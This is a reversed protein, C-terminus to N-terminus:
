LEGKSIKQKYSENILESRDLKKLLEIFAATKRYGGKKSKKICNRRVLVGIFDSALEDNWETYNEIDEQRILEMEVMGRVTDKANPISKIIDCLEDPNTIIDEGKQNQSYEYYGLAKSKYIRDLFQEVVQVHCPRVIVRGYEDTSYTRIALATSLRVLKMRQDSPEVIPCSSSYVKGMRTAADLLVTETEDDIIIDNPSRSWAFGVLASCLDSTYKHPVTANHKANVVDISVEGSCVAMVMDFRRIDELSGILEKVADVGHNYASMKSDSRPNSIWILRTRAHTKAREIKILEAIGSSRMDTMKSLEATGMGKVEELIVLRRDQLPITGWTIFWRKATEQLGGVIGAVSARKSDVREGCKYHTMLRSSCESKGQGSDGIVLVDGWGKVVRGQFNIHLATHWVLDYFLHLDNRQYIRTVNTTLDSYIEDLKANISEVTWESPRFLGLDQETKFNNIDDEMPVADFVVLTAHSDNPDACVRASMAYTTNPNIGHGVYYAKRTCQEENSHGIAIQPILRVEEVNHSEVDQFKHSNCKPYVLAREKLIKAHGDEGVNILELITASDGPIEVVTQEARNYVPCYVCYDRDRNCKVISKKPVIYPATDKASVVATTKILKGKFEARSSRALQLEIPDNHEEEVLSTNTSPTFLPTKEVLDKFDDITKYKKVFYDTIDGNPIDQVDFLIVNKISKAYPYLIVCLKRAGKKGADDIDYVIIVDKGKFLSAWEQRFNSAGGTSCCAPFGSQNLLIAKFEGETIFVTQKDAVENYLFLQHHVGKPQIMKSEGNTPNYKYWKISSLEGKGNQVPISIREMTSHFGLRYKSVSDLNIGHRCQLNSLQDNNALLDQHCAEVLAPDYKKSVTGLVNDAHAIVVDVTAGMRTAIFSLINGPASCKFCKFAGSRRNIGGHAKDLSDDGAHFPCCVTVWETGTDRYPIEFQTLLKIPDHNLM